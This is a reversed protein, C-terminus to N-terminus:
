KNKRARTKTKTEVPPPSLNREETEEDSAQISGTDDEDSFDKHRPLPNQDDTTELNKFDEVLSNGTSSSVNKEDLGLTEYYQIDSKTRVSADVLKIQLSITKANIFISEFKIVAKVNCKRNIMETFPIIRRSVSDAFRSLTVGGRKNQMLKVYFVPSSDKEIENTEKNRKFWLPNFKEFSESDVTLRHKGIESRVSVIHSKAYEVIENFVKVFMKEDDTAGNIGYLFLPMSWSGPAFKNEQVGPSWIESTPLVLDGVTGDLEGSPKVNKIKINITNYTINNASKKQVKSFVIRNVDFNSVSSLKNQEVSM